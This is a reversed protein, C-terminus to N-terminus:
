CVVHLMYQVASSLKTINGTIHRQTNDYKTTEYGPNTMFWVRNDNCVIKQPNWLSNITSKVQWYVRCAVNIGGFSMELRKNSESAKRNGRQSMERSKRGVSNTENPVPHQTGMKGVIITQRGNNLARQRWKLRSYRHNARFTDSLFSSSSDFHLFVLQKQMFLRFWVQWDLHDNATLTAPLIRIITQWQAAYIMAHFHGALPGVRGRRDRSIQM